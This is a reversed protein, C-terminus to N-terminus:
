NLGFSEQYHITGKINNLSNQFLPKILYYESPVDFSAKIDYNEKSPVYGFKSYYSPSGLISIAPYKYKIAICEIEQMLLKGIGQKQYEPLVAIPALCLGVLKNKYNIEKQNEDNNDNKNEEKEENDIITIESLLAYGVIKNNNEKDKVIIEFDNKYQKENRLKEILIHEDKSSHEVSRFTIEVLEKAEKFDLNNLKEIKFKNNM